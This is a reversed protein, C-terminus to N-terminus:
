LIIEQLENWLIETSPLSNKYKKIDNLVMERFRLKDEGEFPIHYVVVKKPNLAKIVKRGSILNLFLPNIFLVDITERNLTEIFYQANYESDGIILMKRGNFNLFYCYNELNKYEEGAHLSCFVSISLEETFKIEMLQGLPLDLLWLKEARLKATERLSPYQCTQRDPIIFGKVLHKKLFAETFEASFHDRHNHTFIIYDINQFLPKKGELLDELVQKSLGSFLETTNEHIGDILLKTGNCQLLIGENALLTVKINM